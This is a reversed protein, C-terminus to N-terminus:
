HPQIQNLEDVVGPHWAVSSDISTHPLAFTGKLAHSVLNAHKEPFDAHAILVYGPLPHLLRLDINGFAAFRGVGQSMSEVDHISLVAVDMQETGLLSALRRADPGRAVRASARPLEQELATVVEKALQYTNPNDKHCGILLHKRRYVEWQRYPTHAATPRVSGSLLALLAVSFQRRHIMM